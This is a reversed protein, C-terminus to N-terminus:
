VAKEIWEAVWRMVAPKTYPSYRTLHPVAVVNLSRGQYEVSFRHCWFNGQESHISEIEAPCLFDRLYSFPSQKDGSGYAVIAKPKVIDIIEVHIPWSQLADGDLDPHLGVTRERTFVINSAPVGRVDFGLGGLFRRVQKQLKQEGPPRGEWSYDLYENRGDDLDNLSQRITTPLTGGPKIGMFYIDHPRLTDGASYLVKGPKDVIGSQALVARKIRDINGVSM